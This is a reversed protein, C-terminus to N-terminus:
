RRISCANALGPGTGSIEQAGVSFTRQDHLAVCLCPSKGRARSGARHGHRSGVLPARPVYECLRMDFRWSARRDGVITASIQAEPQAVSPGAAPVDAPPAAEPPAAANPPLGPPTSTLQSLPWTGPM